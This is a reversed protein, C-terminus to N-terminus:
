RLWNNPNKIYQKGTNRSRTEAYNKAAAILDDETLSKTTKLLSVYEANTNLLNVKKPYVECFEEFRGTPSIPPRDKTKTKNRKHKNIPVSQPEYQPETQPEYQPVNKINNQVM